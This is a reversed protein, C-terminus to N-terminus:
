FEWRLVGSVQHATYNGRGVEANYNAELCLNPKIGVAVGAGVVAFDRQPSETRYSFNGGTPSLRANLGRSDNSFEHQYSASVQPVVRAKGAKFPCSLRAGVGTQLSEAEQNGVTLNLAGAGTETFSGAWAKAYNLSVAPTLIVRKVKIDYGAETAFNIQSGNVSSKAVRRLGGFSFRREMDYLNLTYGFAGMVYFNGPYYTGYVLFPISDAESNGGSGNFDTSTHYYGTGVGLILNDRLRYDVGATFGFIDFDYGTQNLTTDQDGFTGLFDTYISWPRNAERNERASLLGGVDAGNYALMLGALRSGSVRPAGAGGGGTWRQYTLRNALSRWHMMAGALSMAPLAQAKDPSIQQYATPLASAPMVTLTDLVQALDGTATDRVGNLMIGVNHQNATLPVGPNAFDRGYRMLDISTPHYLLKWTINSLINAFTGTVGGTATIIGPFVQNYPPNYGGLLVPQLTGDVQATGDVAIIDYDTASAIEVVYTGLANQTYSGTVNLTGTSTGPNVTGTNTLDGDILGFGTLTGFNDLWGRFTGGRLNFTGYDLSGDTHTFLGGTNLFITGASLIGYDLDYEGVSGPNAALTLTSAVRHEGGVQIFTGVGSQGVITNTTSLFGDQLNFAGRGNASAGLTLTNAVTHTGGIQAFAGMAGTDELIENTASLSGGWQTITGGQDLLLGQGNFSLSDGAYLTLTSYHAMGNGATFDANFNATGYNLLRGTFTGSNYNYTGRNELCGQVEGGQHFFSTFNLTGGTQNFIGGPNLIIENATLTGGQLNYIGSSGPDEAVRVQNNVFHTGGTQNFTGTGTIGVLTYSTALTGGSLNYTANGTNLDALRLDGNITNTGGTQNFTGTGEYGIYLDVMNLTGDQLNYEGRGGLDRGVGLHENLTTNGGMQNFISTGAQSNVFIGNLFLDTGASQNFVAIGQRGVNIQAITPDLFALNGAQLNFTAQGTPEDALNINNTIVTGGTQNFTGTGEYGVYLEGVTLDGGQMDYTGTGGVGRAVGLHDTVNITGGTQRFEGNGAEGVFLDAGTTLAGGTFNYAGRGGASQGLTLSNAVLQGGGSQNFTGIGENGVITYSTTLIGDGELNYAGESGAVYGLILDNGTVHMGSAQNFAGIGGFGVFSYNTILTGGQLNYAGSGGVDTGLGLDNTVMVTTFVPTNESQTFTGTGLEGIMLNNATLDGGELNYTGTSGTQSGLYLYDTASLSGDTQHVSGQHTDGVYITGAQLEGEPVPQGLNLTMTGIGTANIRIVSLSPAAPFINRYAATRNNADDQELFASDDNNPVGNPNWNTATGWDQVGPAGVWYYDIQAFASQVLLGVVLWGALLLVQPWRSGISRYVKM